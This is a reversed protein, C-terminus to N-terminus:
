MKQSSCKQKNSINAYKNTQGIFIDQSIARFQFHWIFQFYMFIEALYKLYNKLTVQTDGSLKKGSFRLFQPFSMGLQSRYRTVNKNEFSVFIQPEFTQRCTLLLLCTGQYGKIILVEAAVLFTMLLLVCLILYMYLESCFIGLVIILIFHVLMNLLRSGTAKKCPLANKYRGDKILCLVFMDNFKYIYGSYQQM